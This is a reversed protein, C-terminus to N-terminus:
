KIKKYRRTLCSYLGYLSIIAWAGEVLVASLNWDFYLSFLIMVAGVLNMASYLLKHPALRSTQLLFYALLIIIVGFIGIINALQHLQSM